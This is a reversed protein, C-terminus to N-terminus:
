DAFPLLPEVGGIRALSRLREPAGHFSVTRGEARALRMWEILVALGASDADTIGSLDLEASARGALAASGEALARAATELRLPGTLVLRGGATTDVRLRPAPVDTPM